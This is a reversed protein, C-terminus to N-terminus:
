EEELIEEVENAKKINEASLFYLVDGLSDKSFLYTRFENITFKPEKEAFKIKPDIVESIESHLNNKVCPILASYQEMTLQSSIDKSLIIYNIDSGHSPELGELTDIYLVKADDQRWAHIM